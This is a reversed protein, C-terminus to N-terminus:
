GQEAHNEPHHPGTRHAPPMSDMITWARSSVMGLRTGNQNLGTLVNPKNNTVVRLSRESINTTSMWGKCREVKTSASETEGRPEVYRIYLPQKTGPAECWATALKAHGPLSRSISCGTEDPNSRETFCLISRSQLDCRATLGPWGQRPPVWFYLDGCGVPPWGGLCIPIKKM